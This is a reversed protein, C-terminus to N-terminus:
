GKKTFIRKAEFMGRPTDLYLDLTLTAGDASLTYKRTTRQTVTGNPTNSTTEDEVVISRHGPTWYIKRKGTAGPPAPPTFDREKGDLLWTENVPTERQPTVIKGEMKVEDEKQAITMTQDFGPPNNFSRAKDLAWTGSFNPKDAALTVGALLILLMTLRTLGIGKM